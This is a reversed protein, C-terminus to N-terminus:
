DRREADGEADEGGEITDLETRLTRTPLPQWCSEEIELTGPRAESVGARSETELLADDTAPPAREPEGAPAHTRQRLREPIGRAARRLAHAAREAGERMRARRKPGRAPDLWYAAGVAAAAALAGWIPRADAGDGARRHFLRTSITV